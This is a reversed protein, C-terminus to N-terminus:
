VRINLYFGRPVDERLPKGSSLVRDLRVLAARLPPSDEPRTVAARIEVERAERYGKPRSPTEAPAPPPPSAAIRTTDAM